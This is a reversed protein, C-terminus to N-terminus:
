KRRAKKRAKKRAMKRKATPGSLELSLTLKRGELLAPKPFGKGVLERITAPLKPCLGTITYTYRKLATSVVAKKKAMREEKPAPIM